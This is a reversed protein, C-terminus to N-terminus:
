IGNTAGHTCHPFPSRTSPQEKITSRPLLWSVSQSPALVPLKRAPWLTNHQPETGAHIAPAIPLLKWWSVSLAFSDGALPLRPSEVSSTDNLFLKFKYKWSSSSHPEDKRQPLLYNLPWRSECPARTAQSKHVIQDALCTFSFPINQTTM